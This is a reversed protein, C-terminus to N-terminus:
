SMIYFTFYVAVYILVFLLIAAFFNESFLLCIAIHQQRNTWNLKVGHQLVIFRKWDSNINFLVRKNRERTGTHAFQNVWNSFAQLNYFSSLQIRLWIRSREALYSVAKFVFTESTFVVLLGRYLIFQVLWSTSNGTCLFVCHKLLM